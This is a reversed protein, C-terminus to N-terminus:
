KRAGLPEVHFGFSWSSFSLFEPRARKVDVVGEPVDIPMKPQTLHSM